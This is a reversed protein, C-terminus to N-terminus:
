EIEQGIEWVKLLGKLGLGKGMVRFIEASRQERAGGRAM